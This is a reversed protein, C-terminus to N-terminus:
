LATTYTSTDKVEETEVMEKIIEKKTAEFILKNDVCDISIVCDKRMGEKLMYKSIPLMVEKKMARKLPRAGYGPSFGVNYLYKVVNDTYKVDINKENTWENLKRFALKVIEYSNDKTLSNFTIISDVRNLFEPKFKNKLAEKIARERKEHTLKSTNGMGMRGSISNVERVGLNSTMLVVTQGFSVTEGKNSTLRGEDMVQLLLDHLSQHSKEVEDILIVSFPNKSLSTLFPSGEDFGVYGNPSGIIKSIEHKQSYESGDIRLLAHEDGCLEKSLVQALFTKGVGSEGTLIFVGIPTNLEKMGCSALEVSECVSDVASGQGIVWTKVREKLSIIEEETLDEFEKYSDEEEETSKCSACGEKAPTKTRKSPKGHKRYVSRKVKELDIKEWALFSNQEICLEYLKSIVGEAGGLEEIKNSTTELVMFLSPFDFVCQTVIYTKYAEEHPFTYKDKFIDPIDRKSYKLIVVVHGGEEWDLMRIKDPNALGNEDFGPPLEPPPLSDFFSELEEETPGDFEPKDWDANDVLRRIAGSEPGVLDNKNVVKIVNENNFILLEPDLLPNVDIILERLEIATDVMEEPNSELSYIHNLIKDKDIICSDLLFMEYRAFTLRGTGNSLVALKDNITNEPLHVIYVNFGAKKWLREVVEHNSM